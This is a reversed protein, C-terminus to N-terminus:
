KSSLFFTHFPSSTLQFSFKNIIPLYKYPCHMCLTYRGILPCFFCMNFSDYKNVLGGDVTHSM